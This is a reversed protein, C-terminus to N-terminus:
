GDKIFAAAYNSNLLRESQSGNIFGM